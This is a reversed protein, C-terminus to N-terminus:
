LALNALSYDLRLMVTGFGDNNRSAGGLKALIDDLHDTSTFYYNGELGVTLLDTLRVSLGGGVPLVGSLAPYDNRETPFFATEDTARTTGLYSKPDFLILGAGAQVYAQFTPAEAMSAAFVSEDAFLDYRLLVTGVGNTSTFALGREKAKDRAGMKFYTAESGIHWHPSLRYRLGLSAAGSYFNDSPSNGLDGNYLATGGGLTLHLPGRYYPRGQSNYHRVKYHYQALASHSSFIGAAVIGFILAHFRM